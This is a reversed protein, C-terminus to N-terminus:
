LTDVTAVPKRDNCSPKREPLLPWGKGSSLLPEGKHSLFSSSARKGPLGAPRSQLSQLLSWCLGVHHAGPVAPVVECRSGGLATHGCFCEQDASVGKVLLSM